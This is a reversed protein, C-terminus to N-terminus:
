LCCSRDLIPGIQVLSSRHDGNAAVIRKGRLDLRTVRRGDALTRAEVPTKGFGRSLDLLLFRVGTTTKAEGFLTRVLVRVCYTDQITEDPRM